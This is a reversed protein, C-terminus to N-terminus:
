APSKYRRICVRRLLAQGLVISMDLYFLGLLVSRVLNLTLKRSRKLGDRQRLRNWLPGHKEVLDELVAFSVLAVLALRLLLCSLYLLVFSSLYLSPLPEIM